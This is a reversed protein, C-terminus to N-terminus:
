RCRYFLKELNPYQELIRCMDNHSVRAEKRLLSKIEYKESVLMNMAYVNFFKTDDLTSLEELRSLRRKIASVFKDVYEEMYIFASMREFNKINHKGIVFRDDDIPEITSLIWYCSAVDGWHDSYRYIDGTEEDILYESDSKPSVHHHYRGSEKMKEWIRKVRCKPCGATVNDFVAKTYMFYDSFTVTEPYIDLSTIRPRAGKVEQEFQATIDALVGIIKHKGICEKRVKM